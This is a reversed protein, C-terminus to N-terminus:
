MTRSIFILDPPASQPSSSVTDCARIAPPSSSLLSTRANSPPLQHSCCSVLCVLISSLPRPSNEKRHRPPFQTWHPQLPLFSLSPSFEDFCRTPALSVFYPRTPRSLSLPLWASQLLRLLKARAKAVPLRSAPTPILSSHQHHPLLAPPRRSSARRPRDGRPARIKPSGRPLRALSRAMPSGARHGGSYDPYPSFAAPSSSTLGGVVGRQASGRQFFIRAHLDRGRSEGLSTSTVFTAIRLIRLRRSMFESFLRV